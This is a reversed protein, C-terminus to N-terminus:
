VRKDIIIRVSKSSSTELSDNVSDIHDTEQNTRSANLNSKTLAVETAHVQFFAEVSPELVLVAKDDSTEQLLDLCSSLKDWLPNIGSLEESLKADDATLQIALEMDMQHALSRSGSLSYLEQLPEAEPVVEAAAANGATSSKARKNKEKELKNRLNLERLEVIIDLIRLLIYQSSTKLSLTSMAPLHIEKRSKKSNRISAKIIAQTENFHETSYSTSTSPMSLDLPETKKPMLVVTKKLEAVLSEIDAYVDNGIKLAAELLKKHFIDRCKPFITSLKIVLSHADSLGEDTCTTSTLFSVLLQLLNENKLTKELSLYKGSNSPLSNENIAEEPSFNVDFASGTNAMSYSLLRILRDNLTPSKSIFPQSLLNLLQSFPSESLLVTGKSSLSDSFGSMNLSVNSGIMFLLIKILQTEIVFILCEGHKSSVKAKKNGHISEQSMLIDFISQQQVFSHQLKKTTSGSTPTSAAVPEITDSSTSNANAFEKSPVIVFDDPFSTSIYIALDLVKRCVFSVAQPHIHIVSNYSEKTALSTSAKSPDLQFVNM